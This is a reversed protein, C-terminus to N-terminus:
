LISRGSNCLLDVHMYQQRQFALRLPTLGSNDTANVDVKGELMVELLAARETDVAYHLPTRGDPLKRNPDLGHKMFYRITERYDPTKPNLVELLGLGAKSTENVDAGRSVLFRFINSHGAEAALMCASRGFHDKARIEAGSEVLARVIEENGNKAAYMLPTESHHEAKNIATQRGGITQGTGSVKQAAM